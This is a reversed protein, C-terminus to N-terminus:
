EQQPIKLHKRAGTALRTRGIEPLMSETARARVDSIIKRFIHEKLFDPLRQYGESSVVRNLILKAPKGAHEVYRNYEEPTLDVGRIKKEPLTIGLKLRVMEKDVLDTKETSKYIPSIYDPGAGGERQIERGFLDLKPLLSSSLGPIRSRIKEIANNAQRVTPDIAAAAQSAVGPVLIGALQKIEAPGYRDPDSLMNVVGTIGQMFTQNTVNKSVSMAIMSALDKRDSESTIYDNIEAMDAAVGLVQGLPALRNYAYYTNGLKISYPQIGAQRMERRRNLDVPGGGTILGQKALMATTLGIGTGFMIRALAIDREAGGVAIQDRVHKSFPAFISREVAYKAINVPTRVFPIVLKVLPHANTARAVSGAVEGLPTQFTQYKAAAEVKEALSGSAAIEEARAAPNTAGESIAQRMALARIEMQRAVTKFLDDELSLATFPTRVVKGLKGPIQQYAVYQPEVPNNLLAGSRLAQALARTGDVTGQILGAAQGGVERFYVKNGGHLKGIGAAIAREPIQTAAVLFNSLLNVVHTQPGSVMGAVAAETFQRLLTTKNANAIAQNAGAPTTTAAIKKALTQMNTGGAGQLIGKVASQSQDTALIKHIDLLRGAESALGSVRALLAAHLTQKEIFDAMAAEDGGQAAVASKQLNTLSARLIDRSALTREPSWIEGPKRNLLDKATVGTEDALMRMADHSIPGRRQARITSENAQFLNYTAAKVDDANDLRQLNISGAYKPEPPPIPQLVQQPTLPKVLPPARVPMPAQRTTPIGTVAKVVEPIGAQVATSKGLLPTALAIAYETAEKPIGTVNEVPESAIGRIAAQVPSGLYGLGALAARVPLMATQMPTKPQFAASFEARAQAALEPVLQVTRKFPKIFQHFQAERQAPLAQNKDPENLRALLSPDSVPEPENLKRLLDPDTVPSVM